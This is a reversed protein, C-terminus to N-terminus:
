YYSFATQYYKDSKQWKELSIHSMSFFFKKVRNDNHKTTRAEIFGLGSTNWRITWELALVFIIWWNQKKQTGECFMIMNNAYSTPQTISLNKLHHIGLCSLVADFLNIQQLVEIMWVHDLVQRREDLVVLEDNYQLQSISAVQWSHDLNLTTRM